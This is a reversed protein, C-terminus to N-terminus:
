SSVAVKWNQPLLSEIHNIRHSAIRNLIDHLWDYPNVNYYKCTALLSYFM